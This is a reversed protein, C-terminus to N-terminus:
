KRLEELVEDVFYSYYTSFLIDKNKELNKTYLGVAKDIKEYLKKSFRKDVFVDIDEKNELTEMINSILGGMYEHLKEKDDSLILDQEFKIRDIRSLKKKKQNYQSIIEM